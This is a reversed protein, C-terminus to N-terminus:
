PGSFRPPKLRPPEGIQVQGEKKTRKLVKGIKGPNERNARPHDPSKGSEDRKRKRPRSLNHRSATGSRYPRALIIKKESFTRFFNWVLTRTRFFNSLLTQFFNPQSFKGFQLNSFLKPVMVEMPLRLRWVELFTRFPAPM